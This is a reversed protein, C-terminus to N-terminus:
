KVKSGYPCGGIGEGPPLANPPGHPGSSLVESAAAGMAEGPPFSDHPPELSGGWSQLPIRATVYHNQFPLSRWLRATKTTVSNSTQQTTSAQLNRGSNRERGGEPAVRGGPSPMPNAALCFGPVGATDRTSRTLFADELSGQGTLSPPATPTLRSLPCKGGGVRSHRAVEGMQSVGFLPPKLEKVTQFRLPM